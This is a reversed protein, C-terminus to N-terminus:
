IMITKEKKTKKEVLVKAHNRCVQFCINNSSYINKYSSFYFLIFYSSLYFFFSFSAWRVKKEKWKQNREKERKGTVGKWRERGRSSDNFSTMEFETRLKEESHLSSNRISKKKKHETRNPILIRQKKYTNRCFWNTLHYNYKTKRVVAFDSWPFHM